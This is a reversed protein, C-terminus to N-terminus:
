PGRVWVVRDLESNRWFQEDVSIAAKQTNDQLIEERIRPLERTSAGLRADIKSNARSVVSRREVNAVVAHAEVWCLRFLQKPCELSQVICTVKFPSPDTQRRDLADNVPM